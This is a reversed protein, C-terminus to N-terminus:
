FNALLSLMRSLKFILYLKIWENDRQQGRTEKFIQHATWHTEIPQETSWQNTNTWNRNTQKTQVSRTARSTVREWVLTLCPNSLNNVKALEFVLPTISHIILSPSFRYLQNKYWKISFSGEILNASCPTTLRINVLFSTLYPPGNPILAWLFKFQRSDVLVM